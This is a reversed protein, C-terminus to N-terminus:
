VGGIFPRAPTTSTSGRSSSSSFIRASTPPPSYWTPAPTNVAAFKEVWTKDLGFAVAYPLYKEFQEKADAVNTYKEIHELYRRFANWRAAAQAGKATKRPMYRALIMTVGAIIILVVWPALGAWSFSVDSSIAIGVFIQFLFAAPCLLVLLLWGFRYFQARVRDPRSQFYGLQVLENYLGDFMENLSGTFKQRIHGMSRSTEGQWLRQMLEREYLYHLPPADTGIKEYVYDDNPDSTKAGQPLARIKIIGRQAWDILTALVDRVNAEEDLLAGALAPTLVNGSSPPDAPPANLFEAPLAVAQDRGRVYWMLLLALGGGILLLVTTFLAYFSFQEAAAAEAEERALREDEQAQWTQVSQTVVGHPFQARIEWETNPPFAGGTFEITQGDLIRAGGTEREDTYTTALLDRTEFNSPLHLIVRAANITYGRDAEIFKYWFQDGGDYIRLPDYLHYRLQFTRTSNTTPSFYWTITREGTGAKLNFTNPTESDARLYNEGNESVGEFVLSSIKNFPITRFAFRFPGGQFDVGWTEVVAVSGDTNITMEADRRQVVVSRDQAFALSTTLAFLIFICPFLIKLRSM